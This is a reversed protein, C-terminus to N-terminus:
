REEIALRTLVDIIIMVLYPTKELCSRHVLINCTLFGELGIVSGDIDEDTWEDMQGDTWRDM